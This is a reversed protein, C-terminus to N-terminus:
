RCLFLHVHEFSHKRRSQPYECNNGFKAGLFLSQGGSKRNAKGRATVVQIDPMWSFPVEPAQPRERLVDERIQIFNLFDSFVGISDVDSAVPNARYVYAAYRRMVPDHFIQGYKYLSAVPYVIVPVSDGFNVFWNSHIRMKYSYEGISKILKIQAFYKQTGYLQVLTDVLEILRGGAERWYAPGEPCGGDDGYTSLFIDASTLVEKTIKQFLADDQLAYVATKMINTNIWINWNNVNKNSFGKWGYNIKLYPKFIRENLEHDIRQVIVPSIVNLQETFLLKVCALYKAMESSGLDVIHKGVLPFHNGPGQQPLHAPYIWSTVELQLWIGNVIQEMYKSDKANQEFRLLQGVLLTNLRYFQDMMHREFNMRNGNRTFETFNWILRPQWVRAHNNGDALKIFTQKLNQPLAALGALMSQRVEKRVQKLRDQNIKTKQDELLQGFIRREQYAHVQTVVVGIIVLFITLLWPKHQFM